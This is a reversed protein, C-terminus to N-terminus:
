AHSSSSCSDSEHVAVSESPLEHVQEGVAVTLAPQQIPASRSSSPSSSVTSFFDSVQM